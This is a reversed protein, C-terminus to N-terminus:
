FLFKIHLIFLARKHELEIDTTGDMEIEIQSEQKSGDYNSHSSAPATVQFYDYKM